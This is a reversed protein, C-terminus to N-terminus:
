AAKAVDAIVVPKGTLITEASTIYRRTCEPDGSCNYKEFIRDVVAAADQSTRNAFLNRIQALKEQSVAAIGHVERLHMSALEALQEESHATLVADCKNGLKKCSFEKM